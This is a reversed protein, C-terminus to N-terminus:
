TQEEREYEQTILNYLVSGKDNLGVSGRSSQCMFGKKVLKEALDWDINQPGDMSSCDEIDYLFSALRDLDFKEGEVEVWRTKIVVTKETTPLRKILIQDRFLFMPEELWIRHSVFHECKDNGTGRGKELESPWATNVRGCFPCKASYHAGFTINKGRKEPVLEAFIEKEAM